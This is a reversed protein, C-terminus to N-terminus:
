KWLIPKMRFFGSNWHLLLRHIQSHRSLGYDSHKFQYINDIAVNNGLLNSFIMGIRLGLQGKGEQRWVLIKPYSNLFMKNKSTKWSKKTIFFRLSKLCFVQKINYLLLILILLNINPSLSLFLSLSLSLSLSSSKFPNSSVSTQFITENYDEVFDRPIIIKM